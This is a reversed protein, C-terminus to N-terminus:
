KIKVSLTESGCQLTLTNIGAPLTAADIVLQPLPSLSGERLQVGQESTLTYTVNHKTKLTFRRTARDFRLSTTMGLSQWEHVDIFFIQTLSTGSESDSVTIVLTYRSQEAAKLVQTTKLLGEEITFPVSAGNLGSVTFSFGQRPSENNVLVQAVTSGAPLDEELQEDSLSINKLVKDTGGIGIVAVHSTDFHYGQQGDRLNDIAFYANGYGGWGWNVHFHGNGDYGDINFSHGANNKDDVGNYVVARGAVLENVIMQEWDGSYQSRWLYTVDDPYGFHDRLAEALRNLNSFLVGSGDEGYDMRVAMGAHYLLRAVEDYNDAGTMIAEWDYAKEADFNISLGGYNVSGYSVSGQPRAPYRQVSMAQALAVAVCGVLAHRDDKVPCYKWFPDSQNWNVEILPKVADGVARTATYGKWYPHPQLEQKSLYAIERTTCDLLYQMNDPIRRLDLTGTTSYGIVPRAADDGSVLAWGQPAFSVLYCAGADGVATVQTATVTTAGQQRLFLTAAEQAQQRTVEKAQLPLFLLLLLYFFTKRKM